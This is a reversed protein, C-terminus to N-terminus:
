LLLYILSMTSVVIKGQKWQNSSFTGSSEVEGVNNQVSQTQNDIVKITTSHANDTGNIPLSSETPSTSPPKSEKIPPSTPQTVPPITPPFADPPITQITQPIEKLDYEDDNNNGASDSDSDNNLKVPLLEGLLISLSGEIGESVGVSGCDFTTAVISDKMVNSCDISLDTFLGISNGAGTAIIDGTLNDTQLNDYNCEKLECKMCQQGNMSVSCSDEMREVTIAGKSDNDGTFEFNRFESTVAGYPSITEGFLVTACNNDNDGVGGNACYQYSNYLTCLLMYDGEESIGRCECFMREEGGEEEKSSSMIEDRKVMCTQYPDNIDVCNDTNRIQTIETGQVDDINNVNKLFYFSDYSPSPIIGELEIDLEYTNYGCLDQRPNCKLCSVDVCTLHYGGAGASEICQCDMENNDMMTSKEKACKLCAHNLAEDAQDSADCSGVHDDPITELFFNFNGTQDKSSGHIRIYYTVGEQAIWHVDCISDGDIPAGGGGDNNVSKTGAVCELGDDCSSVINSKYVSIRAEFDTPDRCVSAHVGRGNGDLRYWLSPSDNSSSEGTCSLISSPSSSSSPPIGATSAIVSAFAASGMDSRAINIDLTSALIVPQATQCTMPLSPDVGSPLTPLSLNNNNNNGSPTFESSCVNFTTYDNNDTASAAFRLLFGEQYTKFADCSTIAFSPHDIINTCDVIPRLRVEGSNSRCQELRCTNCATGDVVLQCSGENNEYDTLSLTRGIMSNGLALGHTYTTTRTIPTINGEPLFGQVLEERFCTGVNNTNDNSSSQGYIANCVSGGNITGCGGTNTTCSLLTTTDYEAVAADDSIDLCECVMLAGDVFNRRTKLEQRKNECNTFSTMPASAPAPAQLEQPAPNTPVVESPPPPPNQEITVPKGQNTNTTNDEPTTNTDDQAFKEAAPEPPFPGPFGGCGSPQQGFYQFLPTMSTDADYCLNINMGKRLNPVDINDCNIQPQKYTQPQGNNTLDLNCDVMTCQQCPNGDITAVCSECHDANITGHNYGGATTECDYKQITVVQQQPQQQNPPPTNTSSSPTRMTIIRTETETAYSSYTRQFSDQTADTCDAGFIGTNSKKYCQLTYDLLFPSTKDQVFENSSSSTSAQCQCTYYSQAYDLITADRACADQATFCQGYEPDYMEFVGQASGIAQITTRDCTDFDQASMHGGQGDGIKINSCVVRLGYYLDNTSSTSTSPSSSRDEETTSTPTTDTSGICDIYECVACRLGDIDMSCSHIGNNNNNNNTQSSALSPDHYETYLVTEPRGVIYQSTEFYAVQAITKAKYATRPIDEFIAGYSFHDCTTGDMSCYDCRPDACILKVAVPEDALTLFEAYREDLVLETCTCFSTSIGGILSYGQDTPNDLNGTFEIEQRAAECAEM